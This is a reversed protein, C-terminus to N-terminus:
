RITGSAGAYLRMQVRRMRELPRGSLRGIIPTRVVPSVALAPDGTTITRVRDGCFGTARDLGSVSADGATLLIGHANRAKKLVSTGYAVSMRRQGDIMAVALVLCPRAKPRTEGTDDDLPFRFSLIDGATVTEPWPRPDTEPTMVTQAPTTDFM